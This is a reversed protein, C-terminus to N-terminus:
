RNLDFSTHDSKTIKEKYLNIMKQSLFPDGIIQIKDDKDLLFGADIIQRDIKRNNDVYTFKESPMIFYPFETEGQSYRIFTEYDKGRFIFLHALNDHVPVKRVNDCWERVKVKCLGCDEDIYNVTVFPYIARFEAYTYVRGNGYVVDYGSIDVKKGLHDKFLKVVSPEQRCGTAVMFLILAAFWLGIKIKV